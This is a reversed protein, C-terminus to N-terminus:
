RRSLPAKPLKSCATLMLTLVLTTGLTIGILCDRTKRAIM